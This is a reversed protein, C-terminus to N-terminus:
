ASREQRSQSKVLQEIDELIRFVGGGKMFVADAGATRWESSPIPYASLIVVAPRHAMGKASRVVEYGAADSEMRMDTVVLDYNSKALEQIADHASAATSVDFKRSEFLAKLTRLVMQDDDVLLAKFTMCGETNPARFNM